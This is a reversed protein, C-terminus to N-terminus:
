YGIYSGSCGWSETQKIKNYYRFLATWPYDYISTANGGVIQICNYILNTLALFYMAEINSSGCITARWM